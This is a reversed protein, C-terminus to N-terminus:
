KEFVLVGKTGGATTEVRFSEKAFPIFEKIVPNRPGSDVLLITAAFSSAWQAFERVRSKLENAAASILSSISDFMFRRPQAQKFWWELEQLIPRLKSLRSVQEIVRESYELIVLKGTQVDDLCDYGLRAFQRMAEEPAHHTVLAVPEKRKLGEILFKVGFLSQAAVDGYAIYLQKSELGGLLKDVPEIGSPILKPAEVSM